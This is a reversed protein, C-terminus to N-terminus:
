AQSQRSVEFIALCYASKQLKMCFIRLLWLISAREGTVEAKLFNGLIPLIALLSHPAPLVRWRKLMYLNQLANCTKRTEGDTTRKYTQGNARM